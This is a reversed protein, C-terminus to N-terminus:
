PGASSPSSHLLPDIWRMDATGVDYNFHEVRESWRNNGAGGCALDQGPADAAPAACSRVDQTGRALMRELYAIGAAAPPISGVIDPDGSGRIPIDRQNPANGPTAPVRAIDVFRGTWVLAAHDSAQPASDGALAAELAPPMTIIACTLITIKLM